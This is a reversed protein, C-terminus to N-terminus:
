MSVLTYRDGVVYEVHVRGDAVGPRSGSDFNPPNTIVGVLVDIDPKSLCRRSADVQDLGFM